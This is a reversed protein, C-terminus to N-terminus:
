APCEALSFIRGPACIWVRSSENQRWEAGASWPSFAPLIWCDNEQIFAAFKLRLGAGDRLTAAPHFHGIIQTRSSRQSECHGHRFEFQETTFSDRLEIFRRLGRDHNGAIAIVECRASLAAFLERLPERAAHDHVLDGVCVLQRPKYEDLLEFIRASAREMGWFPVLRGAARQSLEFGFHLDAVALWNEREHFLALRADLLVNEAVYVQTLSVGGM